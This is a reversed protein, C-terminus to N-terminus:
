VSRVMVAEGPQVNAEQIFHIAVKQERMESFCKTHGLFVDM